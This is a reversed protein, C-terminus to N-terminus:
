WDSTNITAGLSGQIRLIAAKVETRFRTDDPRENGIPYVFIEPVRSPSIQQRGVAPIDVVVWGDDIDLEQLGHGLIDGLDSAFRADADEESVESVIADNVRTMVDDSQNSYVAAEVRFRETDRRRSTTDHRQILCVTQAEAQQLYRDLLGPDMAAHARIKYWEQSDQGSDTFADEQAWNRAWRLLYKSPCARSIAEIAMVGRTGTTPPFLGVRYCRTPAIDTLDISEDSDELLPLGLDEDKHRGYRIELFIASGVSQVGELTFVPRAKQESETLPRADPGLPLGREVVDMNKKLIRLLDASRNRVEEGKKYTWEQPIRGDRRVLELQFLKFGYSTVSIGVM